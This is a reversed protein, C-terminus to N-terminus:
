RALRMAPLELCASECARRNEEESSLREGWLLVFRFEYFGGLSAPFNTEWFNNMIWALPEPTTEELEPHGALLRHGYDLDGLQLLATDPMALATGFGGGVVGFGSQVACYDALSGPLQEKWPRYSSASKHVLMDRGGSPGEYFPLSFYLNEPDLRTEKDLRVLIDARRERRYLGLFVSCASAGGVEYAFELVDFLSSSRALRVGALRGAERRVNWGKRNRGMARRVKEMDARGELPTVEYIPRLAGYPSGPSVLERGTARDVISAIGGEAEWRISASLGEARRGRIEMAETDHIGPFAAIDVAPAIDVGTRPWQDATPRARASPRIELLREEYPGMDLLVTVGESFHVPVNLDSAPIARGEEDVVVFGGSLAPMEWYKMGLRSIERVRFPFPNVVRYRLPRGPQLMSDGFREEFLRDQMEGVAMAAAAAFGQKRAGVERTAFLGPIRVSESLSWTHEAYLALLKQARELEGERRSRGEPDLRRLMSLRRQADRFLQTEFPSSATGDTWWDPWEGSVRQLSAMGAEDRRAERFFESCTACEFRARGRMAEELEEMRDVIAANPPANDALLGSVPIPLVSFPFGRGELADLYRGLRQAGLEVEGLVLSGDTRQLGDKITYSMVGGPLLALENGFQYHEGQWFLIDRSSQTAYRAAAPRALLPVEGHHTHLCSLFNEVGLEALADFYESSLGNVDATMATDLGIGLSRAYRAARSSMSLYLERDALETMNLYGATLGIRGDAVAAEFARREAVSARELFAEVAWFNEVTWKYRPASEAAAKRAYDYHYRGIREQRETYGVDTHSHNIVMLRWTKM